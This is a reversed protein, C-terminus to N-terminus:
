NRRRRRSLLSAAGLLAIAGPAPVKTIQLTYGDFIGMDGGAGDGVYVTWRGNPDIGNLSTLGNVQNFGSSTRNSAGPGFGGESSGGGGQDDFEYATNNFLDINLGCCGSGDDAPEAFGARSVLFVVAGNPAQLKITLDGLWTHSIDLIVDIDTLVPGEGSVDISIAQMSGLTGNYTDDTIAVNNGDTTWDAALAAPAAVLAAASALVIRTKM